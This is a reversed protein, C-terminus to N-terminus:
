RENKRGIKLTYNEARIIVREYRDIDAHPRNDKIADRNAAILFMCINSNHTFRSDKSLHRLTSLIRKARANLIEIRNM